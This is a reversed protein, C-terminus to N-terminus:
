KGSQALLGVGDFENLEESVNQFNHQATSKDILGNFKAALGKYEEGIKQKKSEDRESAFKDALKKIKEDLNQMDKQESKEMKAEQATYKEKAATLKSIETDVTAKDRTNQAISNNLNGIETEKAGKQEKLTDLEATLQEQKAQATALNAKVAVLQAEYTAKMAPLTTSSIMSELGSIDSELKTIQSGVSRLETTKTGINTSIETLKSEASSLTTKDTEISSKLDASMQTKVPLKADITALGAKVESSFKASGLEALVGTADSSAFTSATNPAAYTKAADIAVREQTGEPAAQPRSAKVEKAIQSITGGLQNLLAMASMGDGPTNMNGYRNNCQHASNMQDFMRMQMRDMSRPTPAYNGSDVHHVNNMRLDNVSMSSKAGVYPYPSNSRSNGSSFVAANKLTQLNSAASNRLQSPATPAAASDASKTSFSPRATKNALGPLIIPKKAAVNVSM